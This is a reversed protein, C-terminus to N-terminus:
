KGFLVCWPYLTRINKPSCVFFLLTFRFCFFSFLHLISETCVLDQNKKYQIRLCTVSGPLLMGTDQLSSTSEKIAVDLLSSFSAAIRAPGHSYHPPLSSQPQENGFGLAALFGPHCGSLCFPVRHPVGCTTFVRFPIFPPWSYIDGEPNWSVDAGTIEAQHQQNPLFYFM